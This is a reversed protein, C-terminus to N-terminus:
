RGGFPDQRKYGQPVAFLEDDIEQAVVSELSTEREITGNQYDITHVPFGDIQDMLEGPNLTTDSRLPLSETLKVMFAAMGRFAQLMEDAGDIDNLKAACVEQTKATGEYVAYNKCSYSQWQGSGLAEVRPGAEVAEQQEMMGSMRGQMMQEAMARQEPPLGSLQEQMQQMAENIQSSVEDLMAEDMVIYSKDKHDLVLFEDGLFIMSNGSDADGDDMRLKKSQALITTRDTEQGAANVTVIEM